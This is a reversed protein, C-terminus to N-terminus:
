TESINEIVEYDDDDDDDSQKEVVITEGDIEIVEKDPSKIEISSEEVKSIVASDEDIPVQKNITKSDNDKDNSISNSAESAKIEAKRSASMYRKGNTLKPRAPTNNEVIMVEEDNIDLGKARAAMQKHKELLPLVAAAVKEKLDRSEKLYKERYKDFVSPKLRMLRVSCRKIHERKMHRIFPRGINVSEYCIPCSEVENRHATNYHEQLLEATSWKKGCRSCKHLHMQTCHATFSELNPFTLDCISCVPEFKKKNASNEFLGTPVPTASKSSTEKPQSNANAIVDDTIGKKILQELVPIDKYMDQHSTYIHVRTNAETKFTAGCVPCRKQDCIMDITIKHATFLHLLLNTIQNSRCVACFYKAKPSDPSHKMRQHWRYGQYTWFRSPCVTCSLHPEKREFIEKNIDVKHAWYFHIRLSERDKVFGGCIECIEFQNKKNPPNKSQSNMESLAKIDVKSNPIQPVSPNTKVPAVDKIKSPIPQKIIPSKNDIAMKGKSQITPVQMKSSSPKNMPMANIPSSAAPFPTRPAQNALPGSTPQLMYQGANNILTFMTNGINYTTPMVGTRISGVNKQALQNLMAQSSIPPRNVPPVNIPHHQPPQNNQVRPMAAKQLAKPMISQAPKTPQKKVQPSPANRIKKLPIDCDTPAPELNRKLNFSKECKVLHKKLAARTSNEFPCMPCNFFANRMYIRGKRNHTCEMHYFFAGPHRTVFDCYSCKFDGEEQGHAFEKHWELVNTSESKFSCDNCKVDSDVSYHKTKSLLTEHVDKLKDLNEVDMDNLRNQSKKKTQVRILDKYIFQKCLDAGLTYLMKAMPRMDETDTGCKEFLKYKADKIPATPQPPNKTVNIDPLKKDVTLDISQSNDKNQDHNSDTKNENIQKPGNMNINIDNSKKDNSSGDKHSSIDKSSIDKSTIDKSITDKSTNDKSTTDKSTTDRSTTDKSTIDKSATDKSTAGKSTADESTADESTTDKSAADKSSIDKSTVDKSAIDKSAIDNSAIDKFTVDKNTTDKSTSTVDKSSVDESSVKSPTDEAPVEKSPVDKLGNEDIDNSDLEMEEDESVDIKNDSQESHETASQKKHFAIGNTDKESVSLNGNCLPSHDKLGNEKVDKKGNLHGEGVTIKKECISTDENSISNKKTTQDAVITDVEMDSDM